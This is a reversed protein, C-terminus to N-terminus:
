EEELEGAERLAFQIVRESLWVGHAQMQQIAERM